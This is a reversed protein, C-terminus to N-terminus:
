EMSICVRPKVRMSVSTQIVINVADMTAMAVETM